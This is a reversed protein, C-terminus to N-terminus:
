RCFFGPIGEVRGAYSPEKRNKQCIGGLVSGNRCWLIAPLKGGDKLRMESPTVHLLYVASVQATPPMASSVMRLLLGWVKM